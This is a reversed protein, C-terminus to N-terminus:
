IEKVIKEIMKEANGQTGGLEIAKKYCDIALDYQKNTYYAEGLSDIVNPNKPFEKVALKFIEISENIKGARLLEYGLSNLESPNDFGYENESTKKLFHYMEIAKNVNTLAEKRLVQSVSKKPIEYAKGLTIDRITHGLSYVKNLNNSALIVIIDNKMDNLLITEFKYSIGNHRQLEDEEYYRGLSGGEEKAYPNNLLTDFSKRSIVRNHNMADIWKYMDNIDLWLWGSIFELEPCRVNNMDYCSTRNKYDSKADFVSNTMKLPKIINKTVFDQFTMGTIKEIIRRQLFVNGNDYRYGKGPEFLLTDTKKLIKWAEDNNKPVILGNEIRPIGSVYNILHRTTVKESWKPLDLNYKSIPDDLNLLGREVLMMIAVANFQKAISGFNFISNKTLSAKKTEDSFGFSTQYIIKGKKAVLVNGNFLGRKYSQTMLENMQNIETKQEVVKQASLFSTFLISLSLIFIIKKM